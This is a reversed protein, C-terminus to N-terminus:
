LEYADIWVPDDDLWAPEEDAWDATEDAVPRIPHEAPEAPWLPEALEELEMPIDQRKTMEISALRVPSWSVFIIL